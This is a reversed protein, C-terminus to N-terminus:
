KEKTMYMYWNWEWTRGEDDSFAQSWEPRDPDTKDWKFKV